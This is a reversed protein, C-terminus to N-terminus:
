RALPEEIADFASASPMAVSNAGLTSTARSSEALPNASPAVMAKRAASRFAIPPNADM